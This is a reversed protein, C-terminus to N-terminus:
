NAAWAMRINRTDNGGAYRICLERLRWLSMEWKPGGAAPWPGSSKVLGDLMRSQSGM